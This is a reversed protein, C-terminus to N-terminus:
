RPAVGFVGRGVEAVLSRGASDSTTTPSAPLFVVSSVVSDLSSDSAFMAAVAGRPVTVAASGAFVCRVIGVSPYPWGGGASAAARATLDVAIRGADCRNSCTLHLTTDTNTAYRISGLDESTVLSDSPSANVSGPGFDAGGNWAFAIPGPGLPDVAPAFDGGAVPTGDAYTCVYRGNTRGCVIPEGATTGGLMTGGAFGAIRLLFGADGDLPAPHVVADYHDAVCGVGSRRDDYDHPLDPHFAAFADLTTVSAGGDLAPDIGRLEYLHMAGATPAGGDCAAGAECKSDGGGDGAARGAGDGSCAAASVFLAAMWATLPRALAM